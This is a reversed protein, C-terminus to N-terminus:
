NNKQEFIVQYVYHAFISSNSGVKEYITSFQIIFESRLIILNMLKLVILIDHFKNSFLILDKKLM